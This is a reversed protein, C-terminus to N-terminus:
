YRNEINTIRESNNEENVKLKNREEKHKQILDLIHDTSKSGNEQNSTTPDNIVPYEKDNDDSIM